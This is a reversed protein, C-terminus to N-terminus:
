PKGDGGRMLQPPFEAPESGSKLRLNAGMRKKHSFPVRAADSATLIAHLDARM